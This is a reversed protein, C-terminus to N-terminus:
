TRKEAQFGMRQKMEREVGVEEGIKRNEPRTSERWCYIVREVNVSCRDSVESSGHSKISAEASVNPPDHNNKNNTYKNISQTRSSVSCIESVELVVAGSTIFM